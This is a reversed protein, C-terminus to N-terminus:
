VWDEECDGEDRDGRKGWVKSERKTGKQDWVGVMEMVGRRGSKVEEGREGGERARV